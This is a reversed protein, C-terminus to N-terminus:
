SASRGPTIFAMGHVGTCVPMFCVGADRRSNQTKAAGGVRDMAHCAWALVVWFVVGVWADRCLDAKRM